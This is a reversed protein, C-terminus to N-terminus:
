LLSFTQKFRHSFFKGGYVEVECLTMTEKKRRIVSVFRALSDHALAHYRSYGLDKTQLPKNAKWPNSHNGIFVEFGSLQDALINFTYM